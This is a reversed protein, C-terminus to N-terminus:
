MDRAAAAIGTAVDLADVGVAIRGRANLAALRRWKIPGVVENAILLDDFGAALFADAEDLQAVALAVAGADIQRQAISITKHSKAHPRLSVGTDAAFRARSRVNRELVDLDVVVAPTDLADLNSGVLTELAM